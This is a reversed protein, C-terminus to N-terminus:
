ERLGHLASWGPDAVCMGITRHHRCHTHRGFGTRANRKHLLHSSCICPRMKGLIQATSRLIFNLAAFVRCVLVSNVAIACQYDLNGIVRQLACLNHFASVARIARQIYQNAKIFCTRFLQNLGESCTIQLLLALSHRKRNCEWRKVLDVTWITQVASLSYRCHTQPQANSYRSSPLILPSVTLSAHWYSDNLLTIYCVQLTVTASQM